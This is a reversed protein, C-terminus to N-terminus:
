LFVISNTKIAACCELSNQLSYTYQISVSFHANGNYNLKGDENVDFEKIMENVEAATMKEGRHLMANSLEGATIFGNGDKDFTQACLKTSYQIWRVKFAKLLADERMGKGANREKRQEEIVSLFEIQNIGGRGEKDRARIMIEVQKKTPDYNL